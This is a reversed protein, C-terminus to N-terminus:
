LIIDDIYLWKHLNPLKSPYKDSSDMEYSEDEFFYLVQKGLDPVETFFHWLKNLAVYKSSFEESFCSSWINNEGNLYVTDPLKIVLDSNDYINGVITAIGNETLSDVLAHLPFGGYVDKNCEEISAYFMGYRFVVVYLKDNSWKIIDGEYIENHESDLLGTFQGISDVKYADGEDTTITPLNLNSMDSLLGYRWKGSYVSKGRFKISRM